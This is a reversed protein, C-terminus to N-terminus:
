VSSEMGFADESVVMTHQTRDILLSHGIPVSRIRGSFHNSKEQWNM